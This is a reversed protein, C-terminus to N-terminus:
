KKKSSKKQSATKKESTKKKQASEKQPKEKAATEKPQEKGVTKEQPVSLFPLLASVTEAPMQYLWPAHRQELEVAEEKVAPDANATAAFSVAAFPKSDMLYLFLYINLGDFTEIFASSFPTEQGLNKPRAAVDAFDFATLAEEMDAIFDDSIIFYSDSVFSPQMPMAPAVRKYVAERTKTGDVITVSSTRGKVLPLLRVALWSRMDGTVDVNGRVLWSQAENPFRVFYGQGNWSIGKTRKGILLRTLPNGESNLLTVLYSKSKEDINDEVQLDPYFEPLATKPEIKELGALGILINRIREKDAPYGDTEVMGWDGAENKQFTMTKGGHEISVAEITNIKEMLGPILPFFFFVGASYEPTLIWVGLATAFAIVAATLLKYFSRPHM